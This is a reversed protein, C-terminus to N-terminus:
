SSAETATMCARSVSFTGQSVIVVVLGAITTHFWSFCFGSSFYDTTGISLPPM